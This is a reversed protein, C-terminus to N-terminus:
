FIQFSDAYHVHFNENKATIFVSIGKGEREAGADSETSV